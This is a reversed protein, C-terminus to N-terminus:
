MERELIKTIRLTILSFFLNMSDLAIVNVLKDNVPSTNQNTKCSPCEYEPIGIVAVTTQSIYKNIETLVQTRTADDSSLMELVSNITERDTVTNEDIEIETVFHCYQKLLTTKIYQELISQKYKPDKNDLAVSEVQNNIANVWALGTSVYEDISPVTLTFKLGSDTKFSGSVCRTHETKYKTYSDMTLRNPRFESLILKQADTLAANDIWLLKAVNIKGSVIHSCKEVDAVCARKYDFGNPYLSAAFGWTLIPLDHISIYKKLDSIKIDSYSISHVHDLIFDILANNIYVSFNSLTLGSTSRGLIVKEKYLNNYFDILDKETPPKVTIWMGSHPLPIRVIDGLGLFKAVKLLAFEGKIEGDVNKLKFDSITSLAKSSDVFGQEFRAAPDALRETYMDASTYHDVSDQVVDKWAKLSVKDENLNNFDAMKKTFEPFVISPLSFAYNIKESTGPASYDSTQHAYRATPVVPDDQVIAPSAPAEVPEVPTDQPTDSPNSM